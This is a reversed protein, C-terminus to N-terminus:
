YIQALVNGFASLGFYLFLFKARSASQTPDDVGGAILSLVSFSFLLFIWLLYKKELIM